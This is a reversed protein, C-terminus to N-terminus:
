GKEWRLKENLLSSFLLTLVGGRLFLINIYSKENSKFCWINFFTIVNELIKFSTNYFNEVNEFKNPFHGQM